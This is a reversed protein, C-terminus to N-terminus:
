TKAGTFSAAAKRSDRLGSWMIIAAWGPAVFAAIAFGAMTMLLKLALERLNLREEPLSHASSAGAEGRRRCAAHLHKSM